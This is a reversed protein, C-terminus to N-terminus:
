FEFNTFVQHVGPSLETFFHLSPSIKLSLSFKTFVQHFKIFFHLSPACELSTSFRTFCTFKTFNLFNTFTKCLSSNVFKAVDQFLTIFLIENSSPVKTQITKQEYLDHKKRQLRFDKFVKLSLSIWLFIHFGQSSIFNFMPPICIYMYIFIYFIYVKPLKIEFVKVSLPQTQFCHTHPQERKKFSPNQM